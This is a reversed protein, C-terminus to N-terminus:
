QGGELAEAKVFRDRTRDCFFVVGSRSWDL